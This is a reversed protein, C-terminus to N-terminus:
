VTEIARRGYPLDIKRRLYGIYVEVVNPDGDYHTDWVAELITSKSVVDGRHRLLYELLGFERPTLMLLDGAREVRRRAPDLTLDGASLVAPRVPAGRRILARLRAVLVVFSFPKTLYDDAGADLADIIDWQGDRASLVVISVDSWGRLGHIVQLGDLDPLSLDLLVLDVPQSAAKQLAESATSSVDVDYNRARFNIRLARSLEPDDEVILLRTM